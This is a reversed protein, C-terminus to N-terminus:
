LKFKNFYLGVQCNQRWSYRQLMTNRELQASVRWYLATETQWDYAQGSRNDASYQHRWAFVAARRTHHQTYFPKSMRQVTRRRCLVSSESLTWCYDRCIHRGVRWVLRCGKFIQFKKDCTWFVINIRSVFNVWLPVTDPRYPFRITEDTCYFGRNFPNVSLFVIVFM